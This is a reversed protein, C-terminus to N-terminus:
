LSLVLILVSLVVLGVGTAEGASLGSMKLRRQLMFRLNQAFAAFLTVPIWLAM